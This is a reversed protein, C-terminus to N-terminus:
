RTDQLAAKIAAAAHIETTDYLKILTDNQNLLLGIETCGLIVGEAGREALEECVALFRQKAAVNFKGQCLEDFICAHIFQRAASPPTLVTIGHQELRQRYFDQEMTFRTGLLGVTGHSNSRIAEALADIIHLLPVGIGAQVEAAVKHMTNTAILVMDAGAAELAQAAQRLIIATQTWDGARQLAEIEAFDVSFLVLKASHHGGCSNRTYQNLLRYYVATSEWSMGGIVGITKM